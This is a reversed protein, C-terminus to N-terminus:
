SLFDSVKNFVFSILHHNLFFRAHMKNYVVITAFNVIPALEHKGIRQMM